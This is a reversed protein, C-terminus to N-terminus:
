QKKLHLSYRKQLDAVAKNYGSRDNFASPNYGGGPKHKKHLNFQSAHSAVWLDFQVSNLSAFTTQYDKTIGPYEIIEGFKKEVVITPLNAILVTYSRVSDRTKLLYSCSGKTHGPHSLMVLEADGLRIVAGNRLLSDAKVPEFTAVGNGFAYDTSGGDAM